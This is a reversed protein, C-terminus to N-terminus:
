TINHKLEFSIDPVLLEVDTVPSILGVLDQVGTQVHCLRFIVHDHTQKRQLLQEGLHLDKIVIIVSLLVVVPIHLLCLLHEKVDAADKLLVPKEPHAEVAGGFRIYSLGSFILADVGNPSDQAFTLDGRWKLYDFINPM